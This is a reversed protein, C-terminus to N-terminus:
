KKCLEEIKPIIEKNSEVKLAKRIEKLLGGQYTAQKKAENGTTIEQNLRDLLIQNKEILIQIEKGTDSSTLTSIYAQAKDLAEGQIIFEQHIDIEPEPETYSGPDSEAPAPAPKPKTVIIKEPKPKPPSIIKAAKPFPIEGSMVEKALEPDVKFLKDAVKQTRESVGAKEARDAVTDFRLNAIQDSKRDGGQQYANSWNQGFSVIVARQGKELHRREANKDFVFDFLGAETGTYEEFKPPINLDQCIRYRHYGDLIEGKYTIIPDRQGNKYISLLLSQYSEGQMKPFIECLPHIKM